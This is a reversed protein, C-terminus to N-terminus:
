KFSYSFPRSPPIDTGTGFLVTIHIVIGFLFYFASFYLLKRDKNLIIYSIINASTSDEAKVFSIDYLKYTVCTHIVHKAIVFYLYM